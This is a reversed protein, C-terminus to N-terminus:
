GGFPQARYKGAGTVVTRLAKVRIIADDKFQIDGLNWAEGEPTTCTGRFGDEVEPLDNIDARNIVINAANSVSDVGSQEDHHSKGLRQTIIVTAVTEAMDDGVQLTCGAIARPNVLPDFYTEQRVTCLQERLTSM